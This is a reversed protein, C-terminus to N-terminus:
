LDVVFQVLPTQVVTVIVTINTDDDNNDDNVDVLKQIPHFLSLCNNGNSILISVDSIILPLSYLLQTCLLINCPLSVQGTLLFM